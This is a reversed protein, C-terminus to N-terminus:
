PIEQPFDLTLDPRQGPLLASSLQGADLVSRRSAELLADTMPRWEVLAAVEDPVVVPTTALERVTMVGAVVLFVAGAFAIGRWLGSRHHRPRGRVSAFAPARSEDDVRLARIADHLDRDTM